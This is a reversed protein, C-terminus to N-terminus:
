LTINQLATQEQGYDAVSNESIVIKGSAPSSSFDPVAYNQNMNDPLNKMDELIMPLKDMLKSAMREAAFRPDNVMQKQYSNEPSVKTQVIGQSSRAYEQNSNAQTLEEKGQTTTNTIEETALIKRNQEATNVRSAANYFSAVNNNIRM